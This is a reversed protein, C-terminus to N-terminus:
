CWSYYSNNNNNNDDDNYYNDNLSLNVKKERIKKKEPLRKSIEEFLYKINEGTKASVLTHFISSNSLEEVEEKSVKRHSELDCKNGVLIILCDKKGKNTIEKLWLKAGEFSEKCTIDYVIIAISAGRYYMPALSRYREQGATDWIEYKIKKDNLIFEKTSFAAGITPEQFDYFDDNVFRNSICSKGVASNGLLVLKYNLVKSM